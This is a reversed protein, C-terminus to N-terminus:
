IKVWSTQVPQSNEWEQDDGASTQTPPASEWEQDENVSTDTPLVVDSAQDAQRQIVGTTQPVYEPEYQSDGGSAQTQAPPAGEGEQDGVATETPPVAEWVQDVQREAVATPQPIYETQYQGDPDSAQTQTPPVGEGDQDGVATQTPPVAEWVQDGDVQRESIGTLQSAHGTQYQGDPDSAQTQTPPIDEGLATDTPPTTEWSQDAQRGVVRTPQPVSTGVSAQTPQVAGWSQVQSVPVGAASRAPQVLVRTEVQSMAANESSKVVPTSKIPAKSQPVQPVEFVVPAATVVGNLLLLTGLFANPQM